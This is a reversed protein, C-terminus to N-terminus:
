GAKMLLRQIKLIFRVEGEPLGLAAAIQGSTEGALNRRIVEARRSIDLRGKPGARRSRLEHIDREASSLRHIIDDFRDPSSMPVAAPVPALHPTPETSRERARRLLTRAYSVSVGVAPALEAATLDPRTSLFEVTRVLSPSMPRGRRTPASVPPLPQPPPTGGVIRTWLLRKAVTLLQEIM